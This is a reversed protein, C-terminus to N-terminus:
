SSKTDLAPARINVVTGTSSSQITFSAGLLGLRERLSFLGFGGESSQKNGADTIDFGIGDDEVTLNLHDTQGLWEITVNQARAHKSINVLFERVAQFLVVKLEEALMTKEGNSVLSVAVDARQQFQECLWEIAAELGLEYLIPPSLDFILSRTEKLSSELLGNISAALEGSKQSPLNKKLASLQMRALVLNQVTGDHLDSAIRRRESEEALSIKGALSRLESQYAELKQASEIEDSIDVFSTYVQSWDEPDESVIESTVRVPMPSGDARVAEGEITVRRQGALFKSIRKAIAVLNLRRWTATNLATILESQDAAGLVRLTEKNFGIVMSERAEDLTEPNQLLYDGINDIGQQRLQDVVKKIESWNQESLSVPATEFLRRYRKESQQLEQEIVKINTIDRSIVGSGLLEEEDNLLPFRSTLWYEDEGDVKVTDLMTRVQRNQTTLQEEERVVAAYEPPHVSTALQGQAEDNSVNYYNQFTRNIYIYRDKIDKLILMDPSNDMFARIRAESELLMLEAKRPESLDQMSTYIQSWDDIDDGIIQATIRVPFRSGDKRLGESELVIRRKGSALGDVIGLLSERHQQWATERMLQRYDFKDSAGYLLLTESNIDFSHSDFVAEIETPHEQLYDRINEVGQERIQNILLKFESWDQEILSVPAAEFLRRFRQESHLLETEKLKLDTIDRSVFGAGVIDGQNTTIPFRTTVWYQIEGDIFTTEFLSRAIKNEVVLHEEQEIEASYDPSHIYDTPKGKAAENNVNYFDQFAQNIYIYRSELDKIAIIEPSNDLFSKIIAQSEILQSEAKKLESVDKISTFIRSWDDMDDGIIESTILIPFSEGNLRESISEVTVSKAGSIHKQYRDILAPLNDVPAAMMKEIFEEKTDCAYMRIGAQNVNLIEGSDRCRRVLGPNQKFYGAIDTIGQAKLDDFMDKIKTWDYEFLAVPALDFLSHYYRENTSRTEEATNEALPPLKQYRALQEQLVSLIVVGIALFALFGQVPLTDAGPSLFIFGQGTGWLATLSIFLTSTTSVVRPFRLGAWVMLATILFPWAILSQSDAFGTWM